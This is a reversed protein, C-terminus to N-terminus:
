TKPLLNMVTLTMAEVGAKITPDPVPAFQPLSQGASTCWWDGCGCRTKSRHCGRRPVYRARGCASIGFFGRQRANDGTQEKAQAGFAQKLVAATRSTVAQDNVIVLDIKPPPAGAIAAVGKPTRRIGDLMKTRVADDLTRITGHLAAQDPIINRAGFRWMVTGAAEPSDHIAV